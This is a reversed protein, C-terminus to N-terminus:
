MGAVQFFTLCFLVSLANWLFTSSFKLLIHFVSDNSLSISCAAYFYLGSVTM